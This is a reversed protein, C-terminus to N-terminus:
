GGSDPGAAENAPLKARWAAEEEPKKWAEYVNMLWHITKVQESPNGTATAVAYSRMLHTEAEKLHGWRALAEGAGRHYMSVTTHGNPFRKEAGAVAREFQALADKWRELGLYLCGLNNASSLTKAHDPGRRRLNIAAAKELLPAADKYRKLAVYTSGLNSMASLTGPHEPGLM